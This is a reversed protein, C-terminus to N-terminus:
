PLVNWHMKRTEKAKKENEKSWKKATEEVIREKRNNRGERGKKGM